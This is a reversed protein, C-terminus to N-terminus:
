SSRRACPRSCCRSSAARRRRAGAQAIRLGYFFIVIYILLDVVVATVRSAISKPAPQVGRVPLAVGNTLATAGAGPGLRRELGVLQALTGAFTASSSSTGGTQQQKVLVERGNVVVAALTGARLLKRASAVSDVPRVSVRSGTVRGAEQAARVIAPDAAGVIGVKETKHHKGVVAPIVVGAGVAVMLLLTVIRFSKARFREDMERRAILWTPQWWASSM